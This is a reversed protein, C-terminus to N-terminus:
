DEKRYSVIPLTFPNVDPRRRFFGGLGSRSRAARRANGM